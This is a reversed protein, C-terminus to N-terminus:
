SARVATRERAALWALGGLLLAGVALSIADFAGDTSGVALDADAIHNIAHLTFQVTALVLVPLQWSPRVVAIAAVVGLAANWTAVDRIYHDNQAGFGGVQDFFGGPDTVMWLALAIQTVALVILGARIPM